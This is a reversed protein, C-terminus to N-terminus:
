FFLHYRMTEIGRWGGPGGCRLLLRVLPVHGRLVALHLPTAGLPGQPAPAPTPGLAPRLLPCRPLPGWGAGQPEGRIWVQGRRCCSCWWARTAGWVVWPLHGWGESAGQGQTGVERATESGLELWRLEHEAKAPDQEGSYTQPDYSEQLGSLAKGLTDGSWQAGRTGSTPRQPARTVGLPLRCPPETRSSPTGDM